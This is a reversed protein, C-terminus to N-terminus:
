PNGYTRDDELFIDFVLSACFCGSRRTSSVNSSCSKQLSRMLHMAPEVDEVVLVRIPLQMHLNVPLIQQPM